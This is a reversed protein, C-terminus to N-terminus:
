ALKRLVRSRLASTTGSFEKSIQMMSAVRSSRQSALKARAIPQRAKVADGQAVLVEGAVPLVRRVRMSTLSSVKLGPTYAKAM